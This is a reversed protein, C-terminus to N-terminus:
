SRDEIEQCRVQSNSLGKTDGRNPQILPSENPPYSCLSNKSNLLFRNRAKYILQIADETAKNQAYLKNIWIYLIMEYPHYHVLNYMFIDMKLHLMKLIDSM